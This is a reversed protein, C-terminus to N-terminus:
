PIQVIGHKADNLDMFPVALLRRSIEGWIVSFRGDKTDLFLITQQLHNSVQHRLCTINDMLVGSISVSNSFGMILVCKYFMHEHVARAKLRIESQETPCFGPLCESM